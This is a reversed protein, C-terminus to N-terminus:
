RRLRDRVAVIQWVLAVVDKAGAKWLARRLHTQLTSQTINLQRAADRRSQGTTILRVVACERESWSYEDMVRVWETQSLYGSHSVGQGPDIGRELARYGM